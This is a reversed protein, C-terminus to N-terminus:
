WGRDDCNFYRYLVVPIQLEMRESLNRFLSNNWNDDYYTRVYFENNKRVNVASKPHHIKILFIDSRLWLSRGDYDTWFGAIAFRRTFSASTVCGVVPATRLLQRKKSKIKPNSKYWSLLSLFNPSNLNKHHTQDRDM